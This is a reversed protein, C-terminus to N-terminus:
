GISPPLDDPRPRAMRAISVLVICSVAFFGLLRLNNPTQLDGLPMDTEVLVAKGHNAPDYHVRISTGPPHEDVWRQMRDFQAPPYQWIVRQPSPTSRSHIRAATEEEHVLYSVSCNIWYSETRSRYIDLSCRLIQATTEPWQTWTHEQWAQAATVVLAFLTCLGTFLGLLATVATIWGRLGPKNRPAGQMTM